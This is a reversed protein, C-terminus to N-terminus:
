DLNEAFRESLKQYVKELQKESLPDLTIDNFVVATNDGARIVEIVYSGKKLGLLQENNGMLNAWFGTNDSKVRAYIRGQIKNLDTMLMEYHDLADIMRVWAHEYPVDLIFADDGNPAQGREVNFGKVYETRRNEANLRLRYEFHGVIANVMETEIAQESFVQYLPDNEKVAQREVLTVNVQGSRGHPKMKVEFRYKQREVLHSNTWLGWGTEREVEVWDTLLVQASKDYNLTKIENKDLYGNIANWIAQNLNDIQETQEFWITSRPDNEDIHSATVIPAILRPPFISIKNGMQGDLQTQHDIYYDQKVQASSLNKPVKIPEKLEAETYNFDGDAKNPKGACAALLASCAALSTWKLLRKTKHM